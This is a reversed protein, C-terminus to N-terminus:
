VQGSTSAAATQLALQLDEAWPFVIDFNLPDNAKPVIASPGTQDTWNPGSYHEVSQSQGNVTVGKRTHPAHESHQASNCGRRNCFAWSGSVQVIENGFQHSFPLRAQSAVPPVEDLYVKTWVSASKIVHVKGPVFGLQVLWEFFVRTNTPVTRFPGFSVSPDRYGSDRQSDPPPPPANFKDAGLQTLDFSALHQLASRRLLKRAADTHAEEVSLLLARKGWNTVVPAPDLGSLCDTM